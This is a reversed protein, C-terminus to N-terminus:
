HFVGLGENQTLVFGFEGAECHRFSLLQCIM